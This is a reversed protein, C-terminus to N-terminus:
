KVLCTPPPPPMAAAHLTNCYLILVLLLVAATGGRSLKGVADDLRRSLATATPGPEGAHREKLVIQLLPTAELNSTHCGILAM